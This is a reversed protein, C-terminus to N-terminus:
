IFSKYLEKSAIEYGQDIAMQEVEDASSCGAVGGIEVGDLIFKGSWQGSAANYIRLIIKM